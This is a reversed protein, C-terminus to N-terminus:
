SGQQTKYQITRMLETAYVFHNLEKNGTHLIDDRSGTWWLDGNHIFAVTDGIEMVSNM